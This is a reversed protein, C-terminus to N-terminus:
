HQATANSIPVPAFEKIVKAGPVSILRVKGDIQTKGDALTIKAKQGIELKPLDTEIIDAKM